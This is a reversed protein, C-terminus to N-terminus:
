VVNITTVLNSEVHILDLSPATRYFHGIAFRAGRVCTIASRLLSLSLNCRLWGMIVCYEDRWKSTLLSALRQYFSTAEPCAGGYCVDCHPHIM